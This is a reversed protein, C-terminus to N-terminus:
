PYLKRNEELMKVFKMVANARKEESSAKQLRHLIAYRNVSNLTKYFKKAEKNKNLVKLFDDPEAIRSQSEYANEWNGNKKATKIAEMGSSRMKGERVLKLAKLKNIKSWGSKPRRPTFRQIYTYEDFKNAQGDIWGYCLAAEVAEAYTVSKVGSKKKAIRVWVGNAKSNNDDLWSIFGAKNKFLIVPLEVPM